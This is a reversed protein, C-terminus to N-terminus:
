RGITKDYIKDKIRNAKKKLDPKVFFYWRNKLFFIHIRLRDLWYVTEQRHKAM